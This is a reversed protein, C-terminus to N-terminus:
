AEAPGRSRGRRGDDAVRSTSRSLPM